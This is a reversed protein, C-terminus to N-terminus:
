NQSKQQKAYNREVFLYMITGVASLWLMGIVYARNCIVSSLAYAVATGCMDWISLSANAPEKETGFFISYVSATITKQTTYVLGIIGFITFFM